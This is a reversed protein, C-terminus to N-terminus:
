KLKKIMQAFAKPKKEALHALMKRNLRVEAKALKEMLRSYSLGNQRAAANIKTQWLSRFDRKKRRRDTYAHAQAHRYADKALKYKSKRGWRFGKTAKLTKKKRTPVAKGPTVRVM